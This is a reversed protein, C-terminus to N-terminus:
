KTGAMTAAVSIKVTNVSRVGGWYPLRKRYATMM